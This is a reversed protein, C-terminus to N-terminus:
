FIFGLNLGIKAMPGNQYPNRFTLTTRKANGEPTLISRMMGIGGFLDIFCRRLVFTKLGVTIGSALANAEIPKDYREYQVYTGRTLSEVKEDLIYNRYHQQRKIHKFTVFFGLYPQLLDGLM